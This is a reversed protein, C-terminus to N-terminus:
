DEVDPEFFLCTTAGFRSRCETEVPVVVGRAGAHAWNAFLAYLISKLSDAQGAM